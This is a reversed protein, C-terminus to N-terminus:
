ASVEIARQVKAIAALRARADAGLEPLRRQIAAIQAARPQALLGGIEALTFGADGLMGIIRVRDRDAASYLRRNGDRQPCILRKQEWFRLARLTQGFEQALEGITYTRDSM